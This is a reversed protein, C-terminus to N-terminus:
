IEWRNVCLPKDYQIVEVLTDMYPWPKLMEMVEDKTMWDYKILRICFETMLNPDGAYFIGDRFVMEFNKCDEEYQSYFHHKVSDSGPDITSRKFDRIADAVFNVERHMKDSIDKFQKYWLGYDERTKLIKM